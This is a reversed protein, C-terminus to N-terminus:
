QFLQKGVVQRHAIERAHSSDYLGQPTIFVQVLTKRKGLKARLRFVSVKELFDRAMQPTVQYTGTSSNLAPFKMECLFYGFANEILLDVQAGRTTADARVQWPLEKSPLGDIGLARKIQAVHRLCVTEFARGAWANYSATNQMGLWDRTGPIARGSEVWYLYFASYEDTLRFIRSNKAKGLPARGAIFGSQELEELTRALAGGSPIGTEQCIEDRTWGGQYRGGALCRIIALHRDPHDFLSRITEEFERRMAGTASFCLHDIAEAATWGRDVKDLYGPVGGLAMYLRLVDDQTMPSGRSQLFDQTEALTFPQLHLQRTVRGYLGGRSAVVKRLIWWSASGTIVLLVDNRRAAWDNWFHALAELFGSGKADLWPVEDLLLVLKQLGALRELALSLAHFAALWNTFREQSTLKWKDMAMQFSQLQRKVPAHYTGVLSFCAHPGLTQEILFSKGIRRRGYVAVFHSRQEQLCSELVSREENRGIVPQPHIFPQM